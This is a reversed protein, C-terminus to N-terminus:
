HLWHRRRKKSVRRWVDAFEEEAAAGVAEERVYLVGFIFADTGERDAQGALRRLEDRAVASDHHEGLTTQIDEHLSVFKKASGAYLSVLPEGAYRVRKAAKRAEHLLSARDVPDDTEGAAVVRKKLRKWDHLVRGPLVDRVQETALETLPPTAAVAHLRDLLAFYRESEMVQMLRQHASRYRASLERDVRRLATAPVVHRDEAGLATLLRARLVEADRADGLYGALWTLEDRIPETVSRDLLPRFTALAHSLRRSAVRMKHVSDPVDRRVLPDWRVLEAVQELLRHQVVGAAPAKRDPEVLARPPQPMRQDLTRALKSGAWSPTAGSDRLAAGVAALVSADGDVLEIEWERWTRTTPETGPSLRQGTVLDDAFEALVGGKKDLLRSARRRTRIMAVPLLPQERVVGQVVSRIEKPVTKVARSLPVRVEHRAEPAPLKAHWGADQGGTRRRITIGAKTLALDATDFYTAELDQEVQPEVSAVGDVGVFAPVATEDDVDYKDEVEAHDTTM